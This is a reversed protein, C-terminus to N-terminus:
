CIRHLTRPSARVLRRVDIRVRRAQNAVRGGSPLAPSRGREHPEFLECLQISQLWGCGGNSIDFCFFDPHDNGPSRTSFTLFKGISGHVLSAISPEGIHHDRYIGSYILQQIGNLPIRAEALCGASVEASLRIASRSRCGSAAQLAGAMQIETGM